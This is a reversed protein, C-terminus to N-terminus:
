DGNQTPSKLLPPLPVTQWAASFSFMGFADSWCRWRLKEFLNRGGNVSLFLYLFCRHISQNVKKIMLFSLNLRWCIRNPIVWEWIHMKDCEILFFPFKKAGKQPTQYKVEYHQFRCRGSVTPFIIGTPIAEPEPM